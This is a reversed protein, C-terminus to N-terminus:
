FLLKEFPVRVPAVPIVPILKVSPPVAGAFFMVPFVRLLQVVPAPVTLAILTVYKFPTELIEFLVIDLIVPCDERVPIVRPAVTLVAVETEIDVLMIVLRVDVPTPPLTVPIVQEFVEEPITNLLLEILVNALVPAAETEPITTEAAVDVLIVFFVIQSIDPLLALEVTLPIRTEAPVVIFIDFLLTPSRRVGAALAAFGNIPNFM